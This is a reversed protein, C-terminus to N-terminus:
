LIKKRAADVRIIVAKNDPGRLRAEFMPVYLETISDLDFQEALIEIDDELASKLREELLAVADERETPPKKIADANRALIDLYAAETAESGTKYKPLPVENGDADFTIKTSEDVFVHEKLDISIRSKGRKISFTKKLRSTQQLEFSEGGIIVRRVSKDVTLTRTANRLYDSKYMGYVTRLFEYFHDLSQLSITDAKPHTLPSGFMSQKKKEVLARVADEDIMSRLVIINSTSDYRGAAM